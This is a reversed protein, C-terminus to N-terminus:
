RDWLRDAVGKGVVVLPHGPDPSESRPFRLILRRVSRSGAM